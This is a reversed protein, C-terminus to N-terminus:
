CVGAIGSDGLVEDVASCEVLQLAEAVSDVAGFGVVLAQNGFGHIFQDCLKVGFALLRLHNVGDRLM